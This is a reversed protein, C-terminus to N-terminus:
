FNNVIRELNESRTLIRWTMDYLQEVTAVFEIGPKNWEHPAILSLFLTNDDRTYLHYVEGADPKFNFKARYVLLSVLRREELETYQKKLLEVQELIQKKQMEVQENMAAASKSLIVGMETPRFAPASINHGYPLLGPYVPMMNEDKQTPDKEM